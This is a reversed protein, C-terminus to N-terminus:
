FIVDAAGFEIENQVLEGESDLMLLPLDGTLVADVVTIKDSGYAQGYDSNLDDQIGQITLKPTAGTQKYKKIIEKIWPTSKYETISGTIDYGLYRRSKGKQGVSRSEVVEPTFYIECKVLDLIQEGDIFVKGERLSMRNRDSM